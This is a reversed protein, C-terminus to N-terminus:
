KLIEKLTFDLFPSFFTALGSHKPYDHVDEKIKIGVNRLDSLLDKVHGEFTHEVNSYHFYVCEPKILTSLIRESLRKNLEERGEETIKGIIYELNVKTDDKDLYSGLHYQPAGIVVTVNPILLSFNLASYGGKSSGIFIINKLSNKGEGLRTVCREIISEILEKTCKEVNEEILYCGQHNSGFDDLLYLKNCKFPLLTRMYNYKATNPACAPFSVILTDSNKQPYFRYKVRTGFAKHQHEHLLSQFKTYYHNLGRKITNSQM